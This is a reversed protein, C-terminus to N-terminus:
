QKSGLRFFRFGNIHSGTVKRAIASLTRYREGDYEFGQRDALVVVRIKRGKYERVIASGPTPIRPDNHEGNPLTREVTVTGGPQPPIVQTKPAMVRVDADNALEAARKRARESLDGEANAQIRWAIKRLLYARHRTRVPQGHLEEYRKALECTTLHHLADIERAITANNAGTNIM